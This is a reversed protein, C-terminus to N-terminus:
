KVGSKKMAKLCLIENKLGDIKPDQRKTWQREFERKSILFEAKQEMTEIEYPVFKKDVQKKM